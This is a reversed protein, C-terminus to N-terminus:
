PLRNAAHVDCAPNGKRLTQFCFPWGEFDLPKRNVLTGDSRFQRRCGFRQDPLEGPLAILFPWTKDDNVLRSGCWENKSLHPPANVQLLVVQSGPQFLVGDELREILSRNATDALQRDDSM